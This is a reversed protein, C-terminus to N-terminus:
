RNSVISLLIASAAPVLQIASVILLVFNTLIALKAATTTGAKTAMAGLWLGILNIIVAIFYNNLVLILVGAVFVLLYSLTCKKRTYSALTISVGPKLREETENDRTYEGSTLIEFVEGAIEDVVGLRKVDKVSRPEEDILNQIISDSLGYERLVDYIVLDEESNDDYCDEISQLDEGTFIRSRKMTIERIWRELEDLTTENPYGYHGSGVYCLVAQKDTLQLDKKLEYFALAKDDRNESDTFVYVGTYDLGLIFDDDNIAEIFYNDVTNILEYM